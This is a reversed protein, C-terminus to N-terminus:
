KRGQSAVAVTVAEAAGPGQDHCADCVAGKDHARDSWTDALSARHVDDDTGPDRFISMDESDHYVGAALAESLSPLWDRAPELGCAAYLESDNELAPTRGRMNRHHAVAAFIRSYDKESRLLERQLSAVRDHVDVIETSATRHRWYISALLASMPVILSAAAL